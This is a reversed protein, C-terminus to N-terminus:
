VGCSSPSGIVTAVSCGFPPPSLESGFDTTMKSVRQDVSQFAATRPSSATAAIRRAYDRRMSANPKWHSSWNRLASESRRAGTRASTSGRKRCPGPRPNPATTASRTRLGGLRVSKSLSRSIGTCAHTSTRSGRRSSWGRATPRTPLCTLWRSGATSASPSATQPGARRPRTAPPPDVPRQRRTAVPPDGSVGIAEEFLEGHDSPTRETVVTEGKGVARLGSRRTM